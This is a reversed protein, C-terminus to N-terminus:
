ISVGLISRSARSPVSKWRNVTALPTEHIAKGPTTALNRGVEYAGKPVQSLQGAKVDDLMHRLGSLLNEGRSEMTAKLVEPNTLAFNSPSMADVFGKTLFKLRQHAAADLGDAQDVSKMLQDSIALYSQRITDFVPHDRWEPAAFRKDKKDAAQTMSGLMQGWAELGKSWAEAGATMLAMPDPAQPLKLGPGPDGAKWSDAWTELLMQQARGMVLTWHQWDELTPFPPTTTDTDSSM